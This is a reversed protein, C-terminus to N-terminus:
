HAKTTLRRADADRGRVLLRHYRSRGGRRDCTQLIILLPVALLAGVPGWVWGWFSISILILLPNIKVRRGVLMPTIANAEVLHLGVM